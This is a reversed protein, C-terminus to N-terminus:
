QVAPQDNGRQWVLMNPYSLQGTYGIRSLTVQYLFRILVYLHGIEQALFESDISRSLQRTTEFSEIEQMLGQNSGATLEIESITALEQVLNSQGIASDSAINELTLVLAAAQIEPYCVKASWWAKLHRIMKFGDCLFFDTTERILQIPDQGNGARVTIPALLCRNKSLSSLKAPLETIEATSLRTFMALPRLSDGWLFSLTDLLADRHWLINEEFAQETRVRVWVEEDKLLMAYEIKSNETHSVSFVLECTGLDDDAISTRDAFSELFEAPMLERNIIAYACAQETAKPATRLRQFALWGLSAQIESVGGELGLRERVKWDSTRGAVLYGGCTGFFNAAQNVMGIRPPIGIFVRDGIEFTPSEGLSGNARFLLETNEQIKVEGAGDNLFRNPGFDWDESFFVGTLALNLQGALFERLYQM